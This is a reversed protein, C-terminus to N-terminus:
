FPFALVDRVDLDHADTTLQQFNWHCGLGLLLMESEILLYEM